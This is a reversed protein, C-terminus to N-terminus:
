NESSRIQFINGESDWGDCVKHGNFVWESKKSKFGGRNTEVMKRIDDISTDIFIVPKIPTDKRIKISETKEEGTKASANKLLVLEFQNNALATFTNDKERVVLDFVNSYFNTMNEIDTVYIVLGTKM